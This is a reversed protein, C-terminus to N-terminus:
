IINSEFAKCVLFISIHEATDLICLLYIFQYVHAVICKILFIKNTKYLSKLANSTKVSLILLSM